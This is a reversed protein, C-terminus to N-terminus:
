PILSLSRYIHSIFSYLSLALSGMTPKEEKFTADDCPVGTYADELVLDLGDINRPCGFSEFSAAEDCLELEASM